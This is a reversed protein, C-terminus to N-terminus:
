SYKLRRGIEIRAKILNHRILKEKEEFQEYEEKTCLVAVGIAGVCKTYRFIASAYGLLIKGDDRVCYTQVVGNKDFESLKAELTEFSTIEEWHGKPPIGNKEFIKKIDSTDMNAMIIRGTATRYIDDPIIESIEPLIKETDIYDITYKQGGEIVALIVSYGTKKHLWNILPHCISVFENEYKGYRSLCYTAPGLIYGKTHSIKKVYGESELTSIIHSCTSKNLGTVKNIHSLSVPRNKGESITNLIKITKQVSGIM